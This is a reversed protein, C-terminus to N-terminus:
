VTLCMVEFSEAIDATITNKLTRMHPQCGSKLMREPKTCKGSMLILYCYISPFWIEPWSKINMSWQQKALNCPDSDLGFAKLEPLYDNTKSRTKSNGSSFKAMNISTKGSLAASPHELPSTVDYRRYKHHLWSWILRFWSKVSVLAGLGFSQPASVLDLGCDSFFREKIELHHYFNFM